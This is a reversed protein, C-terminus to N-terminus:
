SRDLLGNLVHLCVRNKYYMEDTLRAYHEPASNALPVTVGMTWRPHARGAGLAPPRTITPIMLFGYIVEDGESFRAAPDPPIRM